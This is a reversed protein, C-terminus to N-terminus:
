RAITFKVSQSYEGGRMKLFYIGNNLSEINIVNEHAGASLKEIGMSKVKAGVLNYIDFSVEAKQTLSYNFALKDVAPNPYVKLRFDARVEEMVGTAGSIASNIANTLNTTNIGGNETYYVKHNTGGLVVIKPMGGNGYPAQIVSPDSFLTVGSLGNNNAWNSLSNCSTFADDDIVYYIVKGPHSSAYSQVTSLASQSPGICAGCPMVFSIVIVKGADLEAFLHHSTGSCDNATFDKATQSYSTGPRLFLLGLAFLTLTKKM